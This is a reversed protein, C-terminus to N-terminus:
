VMCTAVAANLFPSMPNSLLAAAPSELGVYVGTNFGFAGIGVMPEVKFSLALSNIGVSVGQVSSALSTKAATHAFPIVQPVGDKVGVFINGSVTYEGEALSSPNASASFGSNFVFSTHFTLSLPVGGVPISISVDPLLEVIQLVRTSRSRRRM